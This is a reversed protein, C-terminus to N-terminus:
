KWLRRELDRVRSDLKELERALRVEFNQVNLSLSNQADRYSVGLLGFLAVFVSIAGIAVADFRRNHRLPPRSHDEERNEMEGDDLGM